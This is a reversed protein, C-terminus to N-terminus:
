DIMYKTHKPPFLGLLFDWKLRQLVQTEAQINWQSKSTIPSYIGRNNNCLSVIKKWFDEQTKPDKLREKIYDIEDVYFSDDIYKYVIILITDKNEEAWSMTKNDNNYITYSFAVVAIILLARATFSTFYRIINTWREIRSSAARINPDFSEGHIDRHIVSM